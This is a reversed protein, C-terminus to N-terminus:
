TMVIVLRPSMYQWVSNSALAASCDSACCYGPRGIPVFAIGNGPLNFLVGAIGPWRFMVNFLLNGIEDLAIVGCIMRFDSSQQGNLDYSMFSIRFRSGNGSILSCSGSSEMSCANSYLAGREM